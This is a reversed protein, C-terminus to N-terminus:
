PFRKVQGLERRDEAKCLLEVGEARFGGTKRNFVVDFEVEDEPALSAVAEEGGRVQEGFCVWKHSVPRWCKQVPRKTFRQLVGGRSECGVREQRVCLEFVEELIQLEVTGFALSELDLVFQLFVARLVVRMINDLFMGRGKEWCEYRVDVKSPFPCICVQDAPFSCSRLTGGADQFTARGTHTLQEEAIGPAKVVRGRM